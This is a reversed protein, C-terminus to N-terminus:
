VRSQVATSIVSSSRRSFAAAPSGAAKENIPTSPPEIREAVPHTVPQARQRKRKLSGILAARSCSARVLARALTLIAHDDADAPLLAAAEEVFAKARMNAAVGRPDHAVRKLGGQRRAERLEESIVV